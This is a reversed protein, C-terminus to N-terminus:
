ANITITAEGSISINDDYDSGVIYLEYEQTTSTITFFESNDVTLLFACPVDPNDVSSGVILNNSYILMNDTSVAGDSITITQNADNTITIDGLHTILIQVPDIVSGTSLTSVTQVNSNNNLTTTSELGPTNNARGDMDFYNRYCDFDSNFSFSSVNRGNVTCTKFDFSVSVYSLGNSISLEPIYADMIYFGVGTSYFNYVLAAKGYGSGDSYKFIVPTNGDQMCEYLNRLGNELSYTGTTGSYVQTDCFDLYQTFDYSYLLSKLNANNRPMSCDFLTEKNTDYNENVALIGVKDLAATIVMGYSAGKWRSGYYPYRELMNLANNKFANATANDGYYDTIFNEIKTKDSALIDKYSTNFSSFSNVFSYVDQCDVLMDVNRGYRTMCLAINARTLNAKPSIYSEGLTTAPVLINRCVMWNVSERAYSAINSYDALGTIINSDNYTYGKYDTAYRYLFCAFQEITVYSNPSFSTGSGSVIGTHYGWCVADYYAASTSVDTFPITGYTGTDRSFNHLVVIMLARTMKTNPRFTGDSYGNMFGNDSMYNIAEYIEDDLSTSVDSFYKANTSLSTGLIMMVVLLLSVLRKKM